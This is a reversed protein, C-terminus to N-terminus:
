RLAFPVAQLVAGISSVCTITRESGPSLSSIGSMRWSGDERVVATGIAPGTADPGLHLTIIHPTEPTGFFTTLGAIDWKLQKVRLAARAVSLNEVSITVTESAFRGGTDQVTYTFSDVGVFTPSPTFTFTGDPNKKVSGGNATAVQVEPVLELPGLPANVLAIGTANPTGIATAKPNIGHENVGLEIVDTDNATANITVGTTSGFVVGATDAVAVPAVNAREALASEFYRGAVSFQNSTFNASSGGPGIMQVFNRVAPGIVLDIAGTGSFVQGPVPVVGVVSFFETPTQGPAPTQIFAPPGGVPIDLSLNIETGAGVADVVFVEQGFPHLLTYTGTIDVDFRIRIRTFPFWDGKAPNENAWAAEMAFEVLGVGPLTGPLVTDAIWWFAEAGFGIQESFADGAIVPDPLCAANLCIEVRNDVEDEIWLPFGHQLSIPGSTVQGLAGGAFGVTLVVALVSLIPGAHIRRQM